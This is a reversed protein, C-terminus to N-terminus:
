NAERRDAPPEGAQDTTGSAPDTTDGTATPERGEVAVSHRRRARREPEYRAVVAAVISVLYLQGTLAEISSIARALNSAPTIDGYGVTTLTILSFYLTESTTPDPGTGNLYDTILAGAFEHLSAFLLGLLLYICLVGRVTAGNVVGAVALARILTVIVALVIIVTAAQGVCIVVTTSGFIVAVVTAIVLGIVVGFALIMSRGAERLLRLALMLLAGLVVVRLPAVVTRLPIAIVLVYLVVIGGLLYQYELSTPTRRRRM